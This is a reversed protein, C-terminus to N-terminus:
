HEKKKFKQNTLLKEIFKPLMNNFVEISLDRTSESRAGSASFIRAVPLLFALYEREDKENRNIAHEEKVLYRDYFVEIHEGFFPIQEVNTDSVLVIM